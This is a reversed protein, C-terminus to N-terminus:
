LRRSNSCIVFLCTVNPDCAPNGVYLFGLVIFINIEYNKLWFMPVNRENAKRSFAVKFEAFLVCRILM